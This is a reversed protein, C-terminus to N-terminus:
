SEIKAVARPEPGKGARTPTEGVDAGPTPVSDHHEPELPLGLIRRYEAHVGAFVTDWSNNLAARRAARRIRERLGANRVLDVARNVFEERDGAVLADVGNRVLFKPGGQASVLAALGSAMAEQVVNGYTDTESPFLFVDMDAYAQSLADGRLVGTFTSRPLHEELWRRESGEGVILFRYNQIGSFRLRTEVDKLLRVNKEPTLRGVYGLVVSADTRTRRAPDFLETDIGRRMLRVPRGTRTELLQILEPNPAFILRAIRYFRAALSLVASEVAPALSPLRRLRRAAYEHINTHWSAALPVGLRHAALAGLIGCDGPGTVHVVDPRFAALAECVRRRLRLFSLDFSFDFEVGVALPWRKYQFRTVTGENSLSTEPGAHAVFL